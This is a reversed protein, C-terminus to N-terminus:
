VYFDPAKQKTFIGTSQHHIDVEHLFPDPVAGSSTINNASLYVHVLIITDPELDDTDIQTAGPTSASLQLEGIMHQYQTTSVNDVVTPNVEASFAAQNHGKAYTVHAGWTVNGGTVIASNHSWHFHLFIDSNKVYDHNIHFELWVEDNVAFQWAKVSGGRYVADGPDTAGVGRKRIKGVLDRWGFTPSATDVKIGNGSAKDFILFKADNFSLNGGAAINQNGDFGFVEAGGSDYLADGEFQVYGTSDIWMQKTNNTYFLMDANERQVLYLHGSAAVVLDSGDTATIGTAANTLKLRAATPEYIHVGGGNIFTPSNINLGIKNNTLITIAPTSIQFIDTDGVTTTYGIDLRDNLTATEHAIVWHKNNGAGPAGSLIIEAGVSGGDDSILQMRANNHEIILHSLTDYHVNSISTADIYILSNSAFSASKIGLRAIQISENDFTIFGSSDTISGNALTLNGITSGTVGSFVHGFTIGAASTSEKISDTFIDNEVELDHQVGLDAGLGSTDCSLHDFIGQGQWYSVKVFDTNAPAPGALLMSRSNYTANGVASKPLAFRCTNGASETWIFEIESTVPGGINRMMITGDLDINGANYSTRGIVSNGIQIMGYTPTGDTDGVKLDYSTLGGDAIGTITTVGTVTLTEDVIFDGAVEVENVDATMISDGIKSTGTFVPITGPTGSIQSEQLIM